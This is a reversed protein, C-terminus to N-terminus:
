EGKEKPEKNFKAFISSRVKRMVATNAVLNLAERSKKDCETMIKDLKDLLNNFRRLIQFIQFMIPAIIVLLLLVNTIFLIMSAIFIPNAATDM